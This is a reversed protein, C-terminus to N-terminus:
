VTLYKRFFAITRSWADAAADAVYSKRTDDFFAHAADRYIKVDHPVHLQAFFERVAAAPISTDRAGYNGAIPIAVADPKQNKVNGYWIAADDYPRPNAWAQRLAITGGMCFGTIGVKPPRADAPVHARSRIWDAAAQLDRQVGGDDLKAAYQRFVTYDTVGDGSPADMRAFLDPAITVFGEKAFRRVDDRITDDVGYIHQVVVVGPTTATADQPIAAYAPIGTSLRPREVAIAPDNEEVVAPSKAPPDPQALAAAITNSAAAVSTSIGVFHGRRM